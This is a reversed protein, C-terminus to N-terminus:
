IVVTVPTAITQAIVNYLDVNAEPAKISVVLAYRAQGRNVGTDLICVHPVEAVASPLELVSSRTRSVAWTSACTSWTAPQRATIM